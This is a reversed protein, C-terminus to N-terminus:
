KMDDEKKLHPCCEILSKEQQELEPVYFGLRKAAYFYDYFRVKLDQWDLDSMM